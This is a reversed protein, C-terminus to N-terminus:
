GPLRPSSQRIVLRPDVLHREPAAEPDELMSLLSSAAIRGMNWVSQSVTSLPVRCFSALRIDDYGVIAVQEPVGVGLELLHAVIGIAVNDNLVFVTTPLCRLSNRAILVPVLDYGEEYTRVNTYHILESRGADFGASFGMFRADMSQHDYGSVVITQRRDLRNVYDAVLRGGKLNDTSVYSIGPDESICNIMVFPLGSDQLVQIARSRPSVPAILIGDVRNSLLSRVIAEEKEPVWRSSSLQISYDKASMVCDIGETLEIFFFNALEDIVVGVIRTPNGALGRALSNPVYSHKKMIALVTKRTEPNVLESNSLVRSVTAKSVGAEAAIDAMTVQRM